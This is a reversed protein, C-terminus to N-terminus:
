NWRKLHGMRVQETSGTLGMLYVDSIVYIGTPGLLQTEEDGM